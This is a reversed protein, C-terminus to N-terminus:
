RMRQQVYSPEAPQRPHRWIMLVAYTSHPPGLDGDGDLQWGLKLYDSVHEHRVYRTFWERSWKNEAALM